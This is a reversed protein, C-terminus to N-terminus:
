KPFARSLWGAIAEAVEPSVREEAFQAYEDPRGTKAPVLLHNVGPIRALETPPAKKRARALDALREAHASPIEADLDASVVLIPQRAKTMVRAPDFQLFSRFWPQDAQARMEPPVQDWSAGTAVAAIIRTQLGIREQREADALGLSDLERQQRELTFEAGPTSMTAVLVLAGIRKEKSAALLAVWGGDGYGVVAIRERDVDKRGRLYRVVARVDDAYDALTVSEARGGSQGIGRKDYRVVVFGRDAIAGALQGFIPVRWLAEDRDQQGSAGVLIVGPLRSEVNPQKTLTAALNFGDAPIMVDEDGPNRVTQTRAMVSSIDQRAVILSASAVDLRVLRQRTDVWVDVELPSEPRHLTLSYRKVAVLGGPTQIQHDTVRRIQVSVEGQPALYARLTADPASVALRAALAEYAAFFNSPLVVTRASIVDTKAGRRGPQDIESIATTLGFSTTIAVTQGKFTANIMLDVPQWDAAYKLEFNQTTLDFPAALRGSGKLLWGNASRTLSVRELGVQNGRVFVLFTAEGPEPAPQAAASAAITAALFTFTCHRLLHM